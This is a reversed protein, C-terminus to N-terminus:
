IDKAIIMSACFLLFRSNNTWAQANMFYIPKIGGWMVRFAINGQQSVLTQHWKFRGSIDLATSLPGGHRELVNYLLIPLISYYLHFSVLCRQTSFHTSVQNFNQTHNVGESTISLLCILSGVNDLM